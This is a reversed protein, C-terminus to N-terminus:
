AVYGPPIRALFETSVKNADRFKYNTGCVDCKARLIGGTRVKPTKCDCMWLYMKGTGTAVKHTGRYLDLNEPKLKKAHKAILAKSKADLKDPDLSAGWGLVDDRQVAAQPIGFLRELWIKMWDGHYSVTSPLAAAQHAIQHMMLFVIDEPTKNLVEGVIYIEHYKEVPHEKDMAHLMADTKSSWQRYKYVGNEKRRDGPIISVVTDYTSKLGAKDAVPGLRKKVEDLLRTHLDKLEKIAPSLDTSAM